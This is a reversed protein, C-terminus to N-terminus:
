RCTRERWQSPSRPNPEGSVSPAALPFRPITRRRRVIGVSFSGHRYGVAPKRIAGAIELCADGKQGPQRDRARRRGGAGINRARGPGERQGADEDRQDGRHDIRDGVLDSRRWPDRRRKRDRRREGHGAAQVLVAEGVGRVTEAAAIRPLALELDHAVAADAGVADARKVSDIRNRTLAIADSPLGITTSHASDRRVAARPRRHRYEHRQHRRRAAVAQCEGGAPRRALADDGRAHEPNENKRDPEPGREADRRQDQQEDGDHQHRPQADHLDVALGAVHEARDLLDALDNIRSTANRQNNM